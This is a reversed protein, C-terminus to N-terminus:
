SCLIPPVPSSGLKKDTRDTRDLAREACLMIRLSVEVALEDVDANRLNKKDRLTDQICKVRAPLTPIEVYFTNLKTPQQM